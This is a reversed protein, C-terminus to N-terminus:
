RDESKWTVSYWFSDNLRELFKAIMNSNMKHLGQMSKTSSRDCITTKYISDDNEGYSVSFLLRKDILCWKSVNKLIKWTYM